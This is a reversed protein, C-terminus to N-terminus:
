VSKSAASPQFSLSTRSNLAAFSSKSALRTVHVLVGGEPSDGVCRGKDGGGARARLGTKPFEEDGVDAIRV